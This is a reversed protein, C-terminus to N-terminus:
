FNDFCEQCSPSLIERQRKGSDIYMKIKVGKVIPRKRCHGCVQRNKQPVPLEEAWAAQNIWTRFNKWPPRFDSGANRRWEIQSEIAPLLLPLAERWGRKRKFNAFETGLGRKIGPYAIRAQNFTETQNM